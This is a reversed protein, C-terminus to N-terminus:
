CVPAVRVEVVDCYDCDLVSLKNGMLCCMM